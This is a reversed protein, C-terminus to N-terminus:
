RQAALVLHDFLRQDDSDVDATEEPHWQVAVLWPGGEDDGLELGEITGDATRASVVLGAGVRDVAQHHHCRGVMSTTGVVRALLSEEEIAYRNDTGGGGDPVGHVGIGELDPIHQHLTGGFAVNVVQLGRCIALVPRALDIAARLMATDFSDQADDVGYTTPDREAGYSEPDVDPGGTLVLGDLTAMRATAELTDISEPPLVVAIGGARDLTDISEPPLVVAIGGARHVSDTYAAQIAVAAERKFTRGEPFRRGSVGILPRHESDSSDV